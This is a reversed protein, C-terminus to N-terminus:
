GLLGIVEERQEQEADFISQSDMFSVRVTNKVFHCTWQDSHINEIFKLNIVLTKEDKWNHFAAVKSLVNTKGEVAFLGDPHKKENTESIWYGDGSSLNEIGNKGQVKIHCKDNEFTFTMTYLNLKNDYFDFLKGSIESVTPVNSLGKTTPLSLKSIRDKLQQHTKADSSLSKEEGLAPLLHDWVLDMSAQMDKSESNIAIVTNKQPIVICYQGFAGDGRYFGPEPKCRWFQYGYGQSWDSDGVHSTTHKRTAEEIWKESILQEEGWKGKQLYLQGFNAIAETSVRLGYGGVNIGEPDVEWDTDKINLPDFLRTKLFDFTSQGSLKQVIASLMYTAGTNYLFHSGPEHPVEQGLFAKVWDGDSAKLMPFLTKDSHGTNMTLLHKVKMAALNPSVEAPLDTKFLDVVLDEVTLKGEDVLMGIATSTFSKSLSYLTHKMGKEFPSWYGETIVKGNRVIMLGHFEQSSKEIAELLNLIASSSVGQAEPTSRPLASFAKSLNSGGSQKCYPFLAIIGLGLSGYSVQQLFKRRNTM